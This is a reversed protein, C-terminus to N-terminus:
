VTYKILAGGEPFMCHAIIARPQTFYSVSTFILDNISLDIQGNLDAREKGNDIM